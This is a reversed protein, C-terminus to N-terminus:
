HVWLQPILMGTLPHVLTTGVWRSVFEHPENNSFPIVVADDVLEITSPPGPTARRARRTALRRQPM